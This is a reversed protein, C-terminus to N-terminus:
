TTARKRKTKPRGELFVQKPTRGHMDRGHHPREENDTKLYFNPDKQM